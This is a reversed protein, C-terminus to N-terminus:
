RGLEGVLSTTDRAAGWVGHAFARGRAFISNANGQAHASGNVANGGGPVSGKTQVTYTVTRSLNSPDYMDVATSDLNYKVTRTHDKPNYNDVATSDKNYKVTVTTDSVPVKIAEEPVNLKVAIDAAPMNTLQSALSALDSSATDIGESQLTATAEPHQESFWSIANQFEQQAPGVDVDFGMSQQQMVDMLNQAASQVSALDTIVQATSSSLQSTDVAVSINNSNLSWMKDQLNQIISLAEKAGPTEINIKGDEDRLKDLSLGVEDIKATYYSPDESDWDIKLDVEAEKNLTELQDQLESIGEPTDWDIEAEGLEGLKANLYDAQDEIYELAEAGDEGTKEAEKRMEDLADIQDKIADEGEVDLDVSYKDKTADDLLSGSEIAEQRLSRLNDASESFDIDAGYQNLKKFMTDILSESVGLQDALTEVDPMADFNINGQADILGDNLKAIDKIFNNVGANGEQLWSNMQPLKSQFIEAIEDSGLKSLDQNSFMQTFAQFGDDGILGEKFMEKTDDLSDRVSDYLDGEDGRAEAQQWLYVANTLGEIQSQYEKAKNIKEELIDRKEIAANKEELNNAEAVEICYAQYQEQLDKIKDTYKDIETDAFQRQLQEFYEGNLHNGSSTSEFLRDYDFGELGEFLASISEVDDITMGRASNSNTMAENMADFADEVTQVNEKLSELQEDIGEADFNEITFKHKLDDFRDVDELIDKLAKLDELSNINRDEIFDDMLEKGTKIEKNGKKQKKTFKDSAKIIDDYTKEMKEADELNFQKAVIDKDYGLAESVKQLDNKYSFIIDELSSSESLKSLRNFADITAPSSSLNEMWQHMSAMISTKNNGIQEIQENTASEILKSFNTIFNDSLDAYEGDGETLVTLYDQMLNKIGAGADELIDEQEQIAARLSGNNLISDWDEQTTSKSFDFTDELYRRSAIDLGEISGDDTGYIYNKLNGVDEYEQIKDLLDLTAQVGKTDSIDGGDFGTALQNWFSDEGQVRKFEHTYDEVSENFRDLAESQIQKSYAENLKQVSGMLNLIANGQADFGAVTQPMIEAIKNNLDLFRQYEDNTLSVNQNTNKYVGKSLESWEDSISDLTSKNTSAKERQTTYEATADSVAKKSEEASVTLKDFATSIGEYVAFAAGIGLITKGLGTMSQDVVSAGAKVKSFFGGSASTAESFAEKFMTGLNGYAGIGNESMGLQTIDKITQKFGTAIGGSLDNIKGAKVNSRAKVINEILAPIGVAGGGLLLTSLTDGMPMDKLGQATKVFGTFVEGLATLGQLGANIADQNLFNYWFDQMTAKLTDMNSQISNMSKEQVELYYNPDEEVMGVLEKAKDWSEVM